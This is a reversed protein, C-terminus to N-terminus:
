TVNSGLIMYGLNCKKYFIFCGLFNRLFPSSMLFKHTIKCILFSKFSLGNLSVPPSAQALYYYICPDDTQILGATRRSQERVTLRQSILMKSIKILASQETRGATLNGFQLGAVGSEVMAILKTSNTRTPLPYSKKPFFQYNIISLQYNIISLQYNIISLQYNM